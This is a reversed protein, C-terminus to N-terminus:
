GQAKEKAAKELQKEGSSSESMERNLFHLDEKFVNLSRKRERNLDSNIM